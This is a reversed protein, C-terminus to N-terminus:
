VGYVFILIADAALGLGDITVTQGSESTTVVLNTSLDICFSDLVEVFDGFVITDATTVTATYVGWGSGGRPAALFLRTETQEVM